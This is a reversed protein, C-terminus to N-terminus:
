IIRQNGMSAEPSTKKTKLGTNWLYPPTMKLILQTSHNKTTQIINRLHRKVSEKTGRKNTNVIAANQPLKIYFVQRQVYDM